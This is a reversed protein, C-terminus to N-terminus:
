STFSELEIMLEGRDLAKQETTEERVSKVLGVGPAFWSTETVTVITLGIYNGADKYASGKKKIRVCHQFTGATVHVVDDVAEVVVSLPVKAIIKFVTKQPPGTKVLLRSYTNDEWQTGVQLPYRFVFHEDIDFKSENDKQKEKGYYMVGQETNKYYLLSGDISQRVHLEEGNINQMALNKFIYKQQRIGDMTTKKVSYSWQLGEKLPFYSEDVAGYCGTILLLLICIKYNIKKRM